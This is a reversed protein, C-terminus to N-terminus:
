GLRAIVREITACIREEGRKLDSRRLVHNLPKPARPRPMTHKPPHKSPVAPPLAELLEDPFQMRNEFKQPKRRPRRPGEKQRRQFNQEKKHQFNAMDAKAQEIAAALRHEDVFQLQASDTNPHGRYVARLHEGRLEKRVIEIRWDEEKIQKKSRLVRLCILDDIGDAGIPYDRHFVFELPGPTGPRPQRKRAGELQTDEDIRTQTNDM